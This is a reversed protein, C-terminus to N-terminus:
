EICWEILRSTFTQRRSMSYRGNNMRRSRMINQEGNNKERNKNKRWKGKKKLEVSLLGLGHFKTADSSAGVRELCACVCLYVCVCVVCARARVCVCACMYVCVISFFIQYLLARGYYVALEMRRDRGILSNQM